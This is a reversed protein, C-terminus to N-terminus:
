IAVECIFQETLQISFFRDYICRFIISILDYSIVLVVM